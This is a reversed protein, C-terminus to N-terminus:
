LGLQRALVDLDGRPVGLYVGLRQVDFLELHLKGHGPACPEAPGRFLEIAVDFLEFQQDAFELFFGGFPSSGFGIICPRSFDSGAM